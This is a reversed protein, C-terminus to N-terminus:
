EKNNLVSIVCAKTLGVTHKYNPMETEMYYALLLTSQIYKGTLMKYEKRVQEWVIGYKETMYRYTTNMVKNIELNKENILDRIEQAWKSYATKYTQTNTSKARNKPYNSLHERLYDDFAKEPIAHKNGVIKIPLGSNKMHWSITNKAKNYKAAADTCTIYGPCNIDLITEKEPEPITEPKVPKPLVVPYTNNLNFLNLLEKLDTITADTISINM